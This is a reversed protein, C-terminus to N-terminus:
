LKEKVYLDEAHESRWRGHSKFLCDSVENAAAGTAGGRRGLHTGYFRPEVGMISAAEKFWSNITSYCPASSQIHQLPPCVLTSRILTGNGHLRYQDVSILRQVLSVLCHPGGLRAVFVTEGHDYQDTKSNPIILEMHTQAVFKITQWQVADLNDYWLFSTYCLTIASLKM